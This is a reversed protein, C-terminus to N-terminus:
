GGAGGTEDGTYQWGQWIRGKARSMESNTKHELSQEWIKQPEQLHRRSTLRAVPERNGGWCEQM